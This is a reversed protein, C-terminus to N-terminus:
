NKNYRGQVHSSENKNNDEMLVEVDVLFMKEENNNNNDNNDIYPCDFACPFVGSSSEKWESRYVINNNNDPNRVTVVVIVSQCDTVRNLFEDRCSVTFM